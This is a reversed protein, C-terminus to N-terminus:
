AAGNGVPGAILHHEALFQAKGQFPAVSNVEVTVGVRGLTLVRSQQAIDPCRELCGVHVAPRVHDAARGGCPSEFDFVTQQNITHRARQATPSDVAGRGVEEIRVRCAIVVCQGIGGVTSVKHRQGASM